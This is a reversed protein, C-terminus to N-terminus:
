DTKNLTSIRNIIDSTSIEHTYKLKKLRDTFLYRELYKNDEEKNVTAYIYVNANLDDLLTDNIIYPANIIVEDVFKCFEVTKKREEINLIPKRTNKTIDVDSHLGVILYDCEKKANELFTMHGYHFLDACMTTYGIIM